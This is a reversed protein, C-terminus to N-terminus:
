KDCAKPADDVLLDIVIDGLSTELLASMAPFQTACFCFAQVKSCVLKTLFLSLSLSTYHLITSLSLSLFDSFHSIRFIPAEVLSRGRPDGVPSFRLRETKINKKGKERNKCVFLVFFAFFFLKELRGIPVHRCLLELARGSSRGPLSTRRHKDISRCIKRIDGNSM